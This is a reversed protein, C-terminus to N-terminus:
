VSSRYFSTRAKLLIHLFLDNTHSPLVLDMVPHEDQDTQEAYKLIYRDRSTICWSADIARHRIIRRRVSPIIFEKLFFLSLAVFSAVASIAAVRLSWIALEHDTM